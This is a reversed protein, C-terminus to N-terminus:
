EGHAHRTQPKRTRARAHTHGHTHTGHPEKREPRPTGRAAVADHADTSRSPQTIAPCPRPTHQTHAIRATRRPRPPSTHSEDAGSGHSEACCHVCGRAHQQWAFHTLFSAQPSRPALTQASLMNSQKLVHGQMQSYATVVLGVQLANQVEPKRGPRREAELPRSRSWPRSRRTPTSSPCLPAHFVETHCVHDMAAAAVATRLFLSRRAWCSASTAAANARNSASPEPSM